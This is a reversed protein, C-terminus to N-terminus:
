LCRFGGRCAATKLLVTQAESEDAGGVGIEDIQWGGDLGAPTREEDSGVRRPYVALSQLPHPRRGVAAPIIFTGFLWGGTSGLAAKRLLTALRRIVM